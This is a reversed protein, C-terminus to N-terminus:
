FIQMRGPYTPDGAEYNYIGLVKLQYVDEGKEPSPNTIEGATPMLPTPDFLTFHSLAGKSGPPVKYFNRANTHENCGDVYKYDTSSMVYSNDSARENQITRVPETLKEPLMLAFEGKTLVRLAVRGDVSTRFAPVHPRTHVPTPANNLSINRVGTVERWLSPPEPATHAVAPISFLILSVLQPIKTPKM